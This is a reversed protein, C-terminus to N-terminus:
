SNCSLMPDGQLKDYYYWSEQKSDWYVAWEETEISPKEYEKEDDDGVTNLLTDDDPYVLSM